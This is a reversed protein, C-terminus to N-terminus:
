KYCRQQGCQIRSMVTTGADYFVNTVVAGREIAVRVAGKPWHVGEFILDSPALAGSMDRCEIFELRHLMDYTRRIESCGTQPDVARGSAGLSSTSLLGGLRDYRFAHAYVSRLARAPAGREDFYSTKSKRGDTGYETRMEHPYGMGDPSPTRGDALFTKRSTERGRADYEFRMFSGDHGSGTDCTVPRHDTGFCTQQAIRGAGDLVYATSSPASPFAAAGGAADRYEFALLGCHSDRVYHREAVGLVAVLKGTDDLNETRVLCGNSDHTSRTTSMASGSDAHPKGDPGLCTSLVRNGAADNVYRWSTCGRDDATPHGDKGLRTEKVRFDSTDREYAAAHGGRRFAAPSGDAAFCREVTVFDHADYEFRVVECGEGSQVAHGAPDLCTSRSTRGRADYESKKQACGDIDSVGTRYERASLGDKDITEVYDDIGYADRVRFVRAGDEAPEVITDRDVIGSPSVREIRSVHGGRRVIRYHWASAAEEESLPHLALVDRGIHYGRARTVQADDPPATAALPVAARAANSEVPPADAETPATKRLLIGLAAAAGGAAVGVAVVLWRLRM